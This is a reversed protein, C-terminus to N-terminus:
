LFTTEALIRFPAPAASYSKEQESEALSFLERGTFFEAVVPGPPEALIASLDPGHNAGGHRANTRRCVVAGSSPSPFHDVDM